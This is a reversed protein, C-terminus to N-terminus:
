LSGACLRHGGAGHVGLRAREAPRQVLQRNWACLGPLACGLRASLWTSVGSIWFGSKEHRQGVTIYLYFCWSEWGLLCRSLRLDTM